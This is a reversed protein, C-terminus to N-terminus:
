ACSVSIITLVNIVFILFLQADVTTLGDSYTNTYIPTWYEMETKRHLLVIQQNM